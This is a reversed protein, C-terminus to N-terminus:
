FSLNVWEHLNRLMHVFTLWCLVGTIALSEMSKHPVFHLTLICFRQLFTHWMFFYRKAILLWMQMDNATFVYKKYTLCTMQLALCYFLLFQISIRVVWRAISSVSKNSYRTVPSNFLHVWYCWRESFLDFLKYKRSLYTYMFVCFPLKATYASLILSLLTARSYMSVHIEGLKYVAVEIIYM